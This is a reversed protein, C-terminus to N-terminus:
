LHEATIVCFISSKDVEETIAKLKMDSTIIIFDDLNFTTAEFGDKCVIVGDKTNQLDIEGLLGEKSQQIFWELRAKWINQSYSSLIIKGGHKTVRLSEKIVEQPDVKFASISNQIAIVLDFMQDEFSLSKANMKNLEINPIDSFIDRALRLSEESTDIGYVKKAKQALRSLVRGYGCGLELVTDNPKIYRLVYQIEAELYQQIRPNAIEYCQKLHLASLKESYYDNEKM